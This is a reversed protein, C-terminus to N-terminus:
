DRVGKKQERITGHTEMRTQRAIKQVFDSSIISFAFKHPFFSGFDPKKPKLFYNLNAFTTPKNIKEMVIQSLILRLSSGFFM